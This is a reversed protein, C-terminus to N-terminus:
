FSTYCLTCLFKIVHASVFLMVMVVVAVMVLASVVLLTFVVGFAMLALGFVVLVPPLSLLLPLSLSSDCSYVNVLKFSISLSLSTRGQSNYKEPTLGKGTWNLATSRPCFPQTKKLPCKFKGVVGSIPRGELSFFDYCNFQFLCFSLEKKLKNTIFTQM